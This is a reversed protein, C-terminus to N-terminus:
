KKLLEEMLAANEVTVAARMKKMTYRPEVPEHRKRTNMLKPPQRVNYRPHPPPPPRPGQPTSPKMSSRDEYKITYTDSKAAETNFPQTTKNNPMEMTKSKNNKPNSRITKRKKPSHNKPKIRENNKNEQDGNSTNTTKSRSNETKPKKKTPTTRNDKKNQTNTESVEPSDEKRQPPDPRETHVSFQLNVNSQPLKYPDVRNIPIVDGDQYMYDKGRLEFKAKELQKLEEEQEKEMIEQAGKRKAKSKNDNSLSKIRRKSPSMLSPSRLGSPRTDVTLGGSPSSKPTLGESPTKRRGKQSSTNRTRVKTDSASSSTTPKRSVTPIAGRAWSDIPIPPSPEMYQWSFSNESSEGTDINICRKDITTLIESEIKNTLFKTVRNSYYRELAEKYAEEILDFSLELCLNESEEFIFVNEELDELLNSDNMQYNISFKTKKQLICLYKNFKKVNFIFKCFIKVLCEHICQKKKLKKNNSGSKFNTWKKRLLSVTPRCRKHQRSIRKLKIM